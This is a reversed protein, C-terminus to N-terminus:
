SINFVQVRQNLEDAVLLRGQHDTCIHRPYQFMGPEAGKKGFCRVFTGNFTFVSMRHNGSESVVINEDRDIAVGFPYFLDGPIQGQRGFRGLLQGDPTFIWVCHNGRDAVVVRGRRDIAIGAPYKLPTEMTRPGFNGQYRGNGDFIHICSKEWDSILVKGDFCVAVGWPQGLYPGRISRASFRSIFKGSCTFKQVKAAEKDVVILNGDSDVAAATPELFQGDGRGESGVVELCKGTTTLIRINHNRVDTVVITNDAGSCVGCPFVEETLSRFLSGSLNKPGIELVPQHIETELKNSERRRPPTPPADLSVEISDGLDSTRSEPDTFDTGGSDSSDTRSRPIRITPGLPLRRPSVPSTRPRRPLPSSFNRHSTKEGVIRCFQEFQPDEVVPAALSPAERREQQSAEAEIVEMHSYLTSKLPTKEELIRVDLKRKEIINQISHVCKQINEMSEQVVQKRRAVAEAKEEVERQVRGVLQKERDALLQRLRGFYTRVSDVNEQGRRRLEDVEAQFSDLARQGNAVASNGLTSLRAFDELRSALFEEAYGVTGHTRHEDLMCQGCVLASCSECFYELDKDPHHQCKERVDTGSSQKSIQRKISDREAPSLIEVLRSLKFNLPLGQVGESPLETRARCEPCVLFGPHATSARKLHKLCHECFSHLCVLSRPRDLFETCIACILEDKAQELANSMIM